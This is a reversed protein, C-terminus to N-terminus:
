NLYLINLVIIDTNQTLATNLYHVTRQAVLTLSGAPTIVKTELIVALCSQPKVADKDSPVLGRIRSPLAGPPSGSGWERGYTENAHRM